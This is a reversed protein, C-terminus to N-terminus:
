NLADEKGNQNDSEVVNEVLSQAERRGETASRIPFFNLDDKGKQDRYEWSRGGGSTRMWQEYPLCEQEYIKKYSQWLDCDWDNHGLKGCYYCLKPSM